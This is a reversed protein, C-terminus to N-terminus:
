RIPMILFTASVCLPLTTRSTLTSNISWHWFPPRGPPTTAPLGSAVVATTRKNSDGVLFSNNERFFVRTKIPPLEFRFCVARFPTIMAHALVICSSLSDVLPCLASGWSWTHHFLIDSAFWLPELPPTLSQSRSDFTIGLSSYDTSRPLLSNPM